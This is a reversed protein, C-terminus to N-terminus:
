FFFQNKHMIRNQTFYDYCINISRNKQGKEENKESEEEKESEESNTPKENVKQKLTNIEQILISILYGKAKSERGIKEKIADLETTLVMRGGEVGIPLDEEKM